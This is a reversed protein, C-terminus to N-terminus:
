FLNLIIIFLYKIFINIIKNNKNIDKKVFNPHMGLALSSPWDASDTLQALIIDESTVLMRYEAGPDTLLLFRADVIM